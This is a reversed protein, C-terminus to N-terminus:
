RILTMKKVRNIGKVSLKYFYLGNTVKQRHEDKCDWQAEYSGVKKIESVVVRVLQGTLNYISLNVMGPKNIQYKISTRQSFPNPTNQLLYVITFQENNAPEGAVGDPGTYKCVMVPTRFIIEQKGDKNVDGASKAVIPGYIWADEITDQPIGGKWIRGVGSDSTPWSGCILDGWANSDVL